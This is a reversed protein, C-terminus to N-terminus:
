LLPVSCRIDTNNPYEELCYGNYDIGKQKLLLEFTQQVSNENQQWNEVLKSIYRGKRISYTEVSDGPLADGTLRSAAAWYHINGQADGHSIGYYNRTGDAPFISHLKEHAAKIDMPFSKAKVRFVPIDKEFEIIEM